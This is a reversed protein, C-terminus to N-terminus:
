CKFCNFDHDLDTDTPVCKPCRVHTSYLGRKKREIHKECHVIFAALQAM